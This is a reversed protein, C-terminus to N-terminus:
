AGYPTPTERVVYRTDTKLSELYLTVARRVHESFSLGTEVALKKISSVDKESFYMNVKIM